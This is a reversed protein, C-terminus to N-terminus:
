RKVGLGPFGTKRMLKDVSLSVQPKIKPLPLLWLLDLPHQGEKYNGFIFSALNFLMTNIKFARRCFLIHFNIIAM